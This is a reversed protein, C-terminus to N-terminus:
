QQKGEIDRCVGGKVRLANWGQLASEVRPVAEEAAEIEPSMAEAVAADPIPFKPMILGAGAGPKGKANRNNNTVRTLFARQASTLRASASSNAARQLGWANMAIGPGASTSSDGESSYAPDESGARKQQLNCIVRESM